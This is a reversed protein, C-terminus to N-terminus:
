ANPIFGCEACCRADSTRFPKGCKPCPSGFLSLCHHMVANQHVDKKGTMREYAERVPRFRDDISANVLPIDHKQRFEKTARMGESYLERVIEFEQDDLM